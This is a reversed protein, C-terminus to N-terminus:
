QNTCVRTYINTHIDVQSSFCWVLHIKSKLAPMRCLALNKDEGGGGGGEWFPGGPLLEEQPCTLSFIGFFFFFFFFFPCFGQVSLGSVQWTCM